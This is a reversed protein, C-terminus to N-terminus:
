HRPVASGNQSITVGLEGGYNAGHEVAEGRERHAGWEWESNAFGLERELYALDHVRFPTAIRPV